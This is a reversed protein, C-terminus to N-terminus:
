DPLTEDDILRPHLPRKPVNSIDYNTAALLFQVGLIAPVAALMVVGAPAISGTGLNTLWAWAGYCVGFMFLLSGVVLEMTVISFDRIFYTTLVRRITNRIHGRLFPGLVNGIKLNSEEDDYHAIMPIDEVVARMLGLHFLLDSEFFFRKAVRERPLLRAVSAHIATYGNTPDFLQWYASSMKTLFSLVSNGFKRVPPMKSATGYAFFRNGKTYDAEGRLIPAIFRPIMRPNMQGDGDVKVLIDAGLEIAKAYGTMVAGGVGQNIQHRVIVVRSDKVTREIFDGSKDPCCDDVCVILDVLPPTAAIVGAIKAIVKYCPIVVAVKAPRLRAGTEIARFIDEQMM